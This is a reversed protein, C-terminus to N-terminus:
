RIDNGKEHCPLEFWFCSGATANAYAGVQGDHLAIIRKVSPLGLGTGPLSGPAQFYDEFVKETYTDAIGPGDDCVTLRVQDTLHELSVSVTHAAYKLANSLYNNIARYLLTEDGAIWFGDSEQSPMWQELPVGQFVLEKGEERAQTHAESLTEFTLQELETPKQKLSMTGNKLQGYALASDILQDIKHVARRLDTALTNCDAGCDHRKTQKELLDACGFVSTLSNKLDHTLIHYFKEREREIERFYARSLLAIDNHFLHDLAAMVRAYPKPFLRILSAIVTEEFLHYSLVFEEYQQQTRALQTGREEIRDFYADFNGDVLSLLLLDVLQYFDPQLTPEGQDQHHSHWRAEWEEALTQHEPIMCRATEIIVEREARELRVIERKNTQDQTNM